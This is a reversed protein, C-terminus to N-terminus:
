KGRENCKVLSVLVGLVAIAGSVISGFPVPLAAYGLIGVSLMLHTLILDDM